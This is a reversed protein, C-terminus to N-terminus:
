GTSRAPQATSLVLGCTRLERRALRPFSGVLAALWVTVASAAHGYVTTTYRGVNQQWVAERLFEIGHHATMVAYWPASLVTAVALGLAADAVFPKVQQRSVQGLLVLGCATLVPLAVAVPGKTLVGIALALGSALAASRQVRRDVTSLWVCFLLETTVVSAVVGIEPHAARAFVGLGLTSGVVLACLVGARGGALRTAVLGVVAILM